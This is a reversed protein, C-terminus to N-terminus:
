EKDNDQSKFNISLNDCLMFSCEDINYGWESMLQEAKDNDVFSNVEYIDISSNAYDMIVLKQM